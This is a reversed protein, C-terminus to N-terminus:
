SSVADGLLTRALPDQTLSWNMNGIGAQGIAQARSPTQSWIVATVWPRPRLATRLSRLWVYREAQDVKTEALWVPKEYSTRM